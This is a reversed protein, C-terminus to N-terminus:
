STNRQDDVGGVQDGRRGSIAIVDRSMKEGKESRGMWTREKIVIVKVGHGSGSILRQGNM